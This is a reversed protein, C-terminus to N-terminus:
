AVECAALPPGLLEMGHKRFLASLSAPDPTAGPPVATDMEEFFLDLGGPVVTVVTRGPKVGVNQFTHRSGHPAFVTAGPGAYIKKGDVEFLFQGELVYWWEDQEYHLHLPPGGNPPTCDEAVAFAGGTDRSSIKISVENGVVYLSQGTRNSGAEVMFAPKSAVVQGQPNASVRIWAGGEKDRASAIGLLHQIRTAPQAVDQAMKSNRRRCEHKKRAPFHVDGATLVFRSPGLLGAAVYVTTTWPFVLTLHARTAELTGPRLHSAIVDCREVQWPWNMERLL